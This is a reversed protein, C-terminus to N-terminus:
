DLNIQVGSEAYDERLYLEPNTLHFQMGKQKPITIEPILVKTLVSPLVTNLYELLFNGEFEQNKHLLKFYTFEMEKVKPTISIINKEDGDALDFTLTAKMGIEYSTKNFVDYIVPNTKVEIVDEAFALAVHSISPDLIIKYETAMITTSSVFVEQNLTHSLTDLVYSNARFVVEGTNNKLGEPMEPAEKLRKYGQSQLYVTADFYLALHDEKVEISDTLGSSIDINKHLTFKRAYTEQLEENASSKIRQPADEQLRERIKDILIEELAGSIAEEVLRNCPSCRMDVKFSDRDITVDFNKVDIQPIYYSDEALKTMIVDMKISNIKGRMSAEGTITFIFERYKFDLRGAFDTNKIEVGIANSSPKFSVELNQPSDNVLSVHTNSAELKGDSFDPLTMNTYKDFAKRFYKDKYKDVASKKVEAVLGPNEANCLYIVVIVFLAAFYTNM